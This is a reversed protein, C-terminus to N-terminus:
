GFYGLFLFCYLLNGISNQVRLVQVPVRYVISQVYSIFSLSLFKACCSVQSPPGMGMEGAGVGGIGDKDENIREPRTPLGAISNRKNRDM